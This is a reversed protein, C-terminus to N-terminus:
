IFFIVLAIEAAAYTKSYIIMRSIMLNFLMNENINFTTIFCLLHVMIVIIVVRPKGYVICYLIYM